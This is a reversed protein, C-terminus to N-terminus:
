KEWPLAVCFTLWPHLDQEINATSIARVEEGQHEPAVGGGLEAATYLVRTSDLIVENKVHFTDNYCPTTPTNRYTRRAISRINEM